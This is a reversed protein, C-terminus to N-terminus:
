IKFRGIVNKLEVAAVRAEETLDAIGKTEMAIDTNNEAISATGQASEDAATSVQQLMMSMNSITDLLSVSTSNMNSVIESIVQADENYMEGTEVMSDYDKMVTGQVFGLIEKACDSLHNVSNIVDQTISMIQNASRQSDDALNGIETAVVAFGRGSEGARAAEISANLALLNTQSAISLIANSLQNIEEVRKADEIARELVAVSESCVKDAEDRSRVSAVQLNKARVSIEAAKDAGEKAKVAISEVASQADDAAITMHQASASVEETSASIQQSAASVNSVNDMLSHTQEAQNQTFAVVRESNNVVDSMASRLENQMSQLSRALVGMEDKKKFLQEPIHSSLDGKSLTELESVVTTIPALMKATVVYGLISFIIVGALVFIFVVDKIHKYAAFKEDQSASVVVHWGFDGPVEAYGVCKSMGDYTYEQYGSGGQLIVNLTKILDQFEPKDAFMQIANEKNIVKTEDQHAINTGEKNIMYASGTEGFTVTNTINSLYAGDGLQYLVGVIEGDYYIPVSMLMIMVGPKTSDELPDSASRKGAIAETFYARSSVDAVTELDDTLTKGERDAVGMDKVGHEKALSLLYQKQEMKDANPDCVLPYRAVAELYMFDADLARGATNAVQEALVQMENRTNTKFGNFSVIISYIGISLGLVMTVIIILAIMKTKISRM